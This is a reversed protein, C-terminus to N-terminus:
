VLPIGGPMPPGNPPMPQAPMIPQSGPGYGRQDPTMPIGPGGPGVGGAPGFPNPPTGASEQPKMDLDLAELLKAALLNRYEPSKKLEDLELEEMVEDPADAGFGEEIVRRKPVFGRANGDALWISKTMQEAPLVPTLTHRVEYYGQIDDPGLELWKGKGKDSMQYVPIPVGFDEQICNLMFGAMDNFARAINNMGPGFISKAISIMTQAAVGSVDAGPIVGNLIPNLSVMNFMDMIFGNMQVLDTGVPPAPMWEPIRGPLDILQGPIYEIPKSEDDFPITDDGKPIARMAPFGNLYAWNM